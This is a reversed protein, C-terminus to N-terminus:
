PCQYSIEGPILLTVDRHEFTILILLRCHSGLLLARAWVGRGGLRGRLGAGARCDVPAGRHNSGTNFNFAGDSSVLVQNDLTLYLPGNFQARM